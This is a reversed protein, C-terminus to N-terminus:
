YSSEYGHLYKSQERLEYTKFDIVVYNSNKAYVSFDLFFIGDYIKFSDYNKILESLYNFIDDRHHSYFHIDSTFERNALISYNHLLLLQTKYDGQYKDKRLKDLIKESLFNDLPNTPDKVITGETVVSHHQKFGGVDIFDNENLSDVFSALEDIFGNFEKNEGSSPFIPERM